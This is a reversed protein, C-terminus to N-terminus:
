LQNHANLSKLGHCKRIVYSRLWSVWGQFSQALNLPVPSCVQQPFLYPSRCEWMEQVWVVEGKSM